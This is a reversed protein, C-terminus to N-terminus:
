EIVQRALRLAKSSIQLGAKQAARLDIDFVVHGGSLELNLMTGQKFLEPADGAILVPANKLAGLINQMQGRENTSLYIINCENLADPRAKNVTIARNRLNKGQAKALATAVPSEDIFCIALKDAPLPSQAPWDIFMAMNIIIAAKLDPESARMQAWLEDSALLLGFAIGVTAVLQRSGPFPTATM